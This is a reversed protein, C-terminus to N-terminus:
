VPKKDKMKESKSVSDFVLAAAGLIGAKNGLEAGIIKTFVQTEKMALKLTEKRIEDIYFDGAESIGGGIVVQQPSFINILGALGAAMYYFHIKFAERAEKEKKLYRQVIYKGDVNKPIKKRNQTLVRKYDRILATVSAHAEWCGIAGCSCREGEPNVIIHGLEGGRNRHGGYLKGNLVMAGGIGTGITIFIIDSYNTKSGFHFEGLGMLSADNEVWVPFDSSKNLIGALPLSEWEPLNEAGGLILGNDIIGPTGIGVGEIQIGEADAILRTEFISQKLISIVHERGKEVETPMKSEFKIQGADDVLAYKVYTGGLDIGIAHKKEKM